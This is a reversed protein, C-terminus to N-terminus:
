VRMQFREEFIKALLIRRNAIQQDSCGKRKWRKHCRDELINRIKDM